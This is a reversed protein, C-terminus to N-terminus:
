KLDHALLRYGTVEDRYKRIDDANNLEKALNMLRTCASIAASLHLLRGRRDNRRIKEQYVTRERLLYAALDETKNMHVAARYVATHVLLAHRDSTMNMLSLLAWGSKETDPSFLNQFAQSIQRTSQDTYVLKHGPTDFLIHNEPADLRAFVMYNSIFVPLWNPSALLKECFRPSKRYKLMVLNVNLQSLSRNLTKILAQSNNAIAWLQGWRRYHDTEYAAQARGDIFVQCRPRGTKPDPTQHFVTYGGAVWETLVTGHLDNSALFQIAEIPQNTISVKREFVSYHELDNLSARFYDNWISSTTVITMALAATTITILVAGHFRPTWRKQWADSLRDQLGNGWTMVLAQQLVAALYPATIVSALVVFRRSLISMSIVMLAIGVPALDIRLPNYKLQGALHKTPPIVQPAGSTELEPPSNKLLFGTGSVICACALLGLFIMYPVKASKGFGGPFYLPQWESVLRWLKGDEGTAIHLAHFLNEQGYPSFVAPVVISIVFGGALVLLQRSSIAVLWKAGIRHLFNQVIYTTLAIALVMIAFTFGGHVNSWVLMIPTICSILVIPKHKWCALVLMLVSALLISTTNPRLDIFNRSILLGYTVVVASLVPHTGLVRSTGYMALVLLIIQVFVLAVIANPGWQSQVFYYVVHTLWNQNVWGIQASTDDLLRSIGDSAGTHARSNPSFPDQKSIHIGLLDLCKMQWTRNPDNQPWTNLMHRGCAMAVFTDGGGVPKDLSHVAAVLALVLSGISAWRM